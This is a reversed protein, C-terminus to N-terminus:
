WMGPANMIEFLGGLVDAGVGVHEIHDADLVLGVHVIGMADDCATFANRPEVPVVGRADDHAVLAEIPEVTDTYLACKVEALEGPVHRALIQVGKFSDFCGEFGPDALEVPDDCHVRPTLMTLARAQNTIM